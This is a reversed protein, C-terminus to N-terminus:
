RGVDQNARERGRIKLGKRSEALNRRQVGGYGDNHEAFPMRGVEQQLGHPDTHALDKRRPRRLFRQQLGHAAEALRALQLRSM